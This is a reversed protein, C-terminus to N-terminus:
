VFGKCRPLWGYMCTEILTYVAAARNGGADSCAFTWNTRENAVTTRSAFAAMTWSTPSRRGATSCTTSRRQLITAQHSCPESSACGSKSIPLLTAHKDAFCRRETWHKPLDLLPGARGIAPVAISALGTQHSTQGRTGHVDGRTPSARIVPALGSYPLPRRYLIQEAFEPTAEASGLLDRRDRLWPLFSSQM